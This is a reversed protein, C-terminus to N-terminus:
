KANLEEAQELNMGQTERVMVTAWLLQIVCMVIFFGFIQVPEVKPNGETGAVVPFVFTLLAAFFWHTFVGLTMGASRHRNPFIESIYAWIVTGQGIAHSAIFAFISPVVLTYWKAAFGLTCLALSVIYGINGVILLTRRGLRDILSIGVYTFVLNSVGIGMTQLLASQDGM